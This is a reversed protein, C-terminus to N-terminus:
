IVRLTYAYDRASLAAELIQLNCLIFFILTSKKDAPLIIFYLIQIARFFEM